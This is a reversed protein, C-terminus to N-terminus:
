EQQVEQWVREIKKIAPGRDRLWECRDLVARPPYVAPDKLLQPDVHERAAKNPTAM